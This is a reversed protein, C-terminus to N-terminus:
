DRLNTGNHAELLKKLHSLKRYLRTMEIEEGYANMITLVVLSTQKQRRWKRSASTSSRGTSFSAKFPFKLISPHQLLSTPGLFHCKFPRILHRYMTIIGRM